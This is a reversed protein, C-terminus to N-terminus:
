KGNTYRRGIIRHDRMINEEKTDSYANVDLSYKSDAVGTLKVSWGGSPANHADIAVGKEDYTRLLSMTMGRRQMTRDTLM